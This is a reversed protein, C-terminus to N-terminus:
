EPEAHLDIHAIEPLGKQVERQFEGVIRDAREITLSPDFKCRLSVNIKDGVRRTFIRDVERIEPYRKAVHKLYWIIETGARSEESQLLDSVSEEHILVEMIRPNIAKLKSEIRKSVENVEKVTMGASFELHFDIGIGKGATRIHVNHAGRSGPVSDAVDKVLKWISEMDDGEPETRIYVRSDPLVDKVKGEILTTVRHVEEYSSKQDLWVNVAVFPRKGSVDITVWRLNKVGRVGKVKKGVIHALDRQSPEVLPLPM